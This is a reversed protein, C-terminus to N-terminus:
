EADPHADGGGGGGGPGGGCNDLGPDCEDGGGPNHPDHDIWCDPEASGNECVCHDSGPERIKGEDCEGIVDIPPLEFCIEGEPCCVGQPVAGTPGTDM